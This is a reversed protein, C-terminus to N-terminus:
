NFNGGASRGNQMLESVVNTANTFSFRLNNVLKEQNVRLATETTKTVKSMKTEEFLSAKPFRIAGQPADDAFTLFSVCHFAHDNLHNALAGFFDFVFLCPKVFELLVVPYGGNWPVGM